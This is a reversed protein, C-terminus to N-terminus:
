QLVTCQVSRIPILCLDHKKEELEYWEGNNLVYLSRRIWVAVRVSGARRTVTGQEVSSAKPVCHKKERKRM